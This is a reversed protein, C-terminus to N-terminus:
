KNHVEYKEEKNMNKESNAHDKDEIIIADDLATAVTTPGQLAFKLFNKIEQAYKEPNYFYSDFHRRGNTIWLKKPGNAGAFVEKVAELPVKEDNKCHIFFCPVTINKVSEVPNCPHLSIQIDQPDFNAVTKLMAKVLSQVYPHFANQELYSRGPIAIDYGLVTIKMNSLGRKIVNETSDFPCDLIMADFIHTQSQAEISAAAGMSFGYVFLPKNRLDPHDRLFRGATIVDQSENHGFTCLQGERNEGHARFDFTMVNYDKPFIQRLLGVDFRDCMFGHCVLITGKADPYRVLMGTRTITKDSQAHEKPYLEVHEVIANKIYNTDTNIVKGHLTVGESERVLTDENIIGPMRPLEPALLPESKREIVVPAEVHTKYTDKDCISCSVIKGSEDTIFEPEEVPKSTYVAAIFACAFIALYFKIAPIRGKQGSNM